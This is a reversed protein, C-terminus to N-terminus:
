ATRRQPVAHPGLEDPVVKRTWDVILREIASAVLAYPPKQYEQAMLQLLGRHSTPLSEIYQMTAERLSKQEVSDVSDAVPRERFGYQDM